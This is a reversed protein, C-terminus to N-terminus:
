VSSLGNGDPTWQHDLMEMCADSLLFLLDPTQRKRPYQLMTRATMERYNVEDVLLESPMRRRLLAIGLTKGGGHELLALKRMQRTAWRDAHQRHKGYIAGGGIPVRMGYYDMVLKRGITQGNDDVSGGDHWPENPNVLM